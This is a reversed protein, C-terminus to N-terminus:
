FQRTAKSCEFSGTQTFIGWRAGSGALAQTVSFTQLTGSSRNLKFSQNGRYYRENFVQRHSVETETISIMPEMCSTNSLDMVAISCNWGNQFRIRSNSIDLLIDLTKSERTNTVLDINTEVIGRCVLGVENAQSANTVVMVVLGVSFRLLCSALPPLLARQTM